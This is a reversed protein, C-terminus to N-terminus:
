ATASSRATWSTTGDYNSLGAYLAKGSRVAQALAGMTEELPTAPDMRHHYYIDVYELGLRKLSQDLSALLYKRSGWDGYPGEWMGYGAKTSIVLEDRYGQFHDRLIRGLNREASGPAPGYNNALDFHTIGCDFATFCMAEMNEPSAADGFNHWFGLSVRPLKLGSTGCPAYEMSRYREASPQYM